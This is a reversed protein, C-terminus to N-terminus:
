RDEYDKKLTIYGLSFLESYLSQYSEDYGYAVVYFQVYFIENETFTTWSVDDDGSKIYDIKFTYDDTNGTIGGKTRRPIGFDNLLTSDEGANYVKIGATYGGGTINYLRIYVDRNYSDGPILPYESLRGSGTLRRYKYTSTMYSFAMAQTSEDENYSDIRLRESELTSRNTYIRYYVEFGKFYGAAANNNQVDSTHFACYNKSEDTTDPWNLYTTVPYLYIYNDIGCGISLLLMFFIIADIGLPFFVSHRRKNRSRLM